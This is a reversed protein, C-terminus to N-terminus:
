RGAGIDSVRTNQLSAFRWGDRTDVATLTIISSHAGFFTIYDADETFATAYRAADGDNWADTLQRRLQRTAMATTQTM